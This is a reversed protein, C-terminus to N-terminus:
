LCSVLGKRKAHLPHDVLSCGVIMASVCVMISFVAEDGLEERNKNEINSASFLSLRRVVIMHNHNRLQEIQVALYQLGYM